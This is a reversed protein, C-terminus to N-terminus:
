DIMESRREEEKEEWQETMARNYEVEEQEDIFQWRDYRCVDCEDDKYVENGCTKCIKINRDISQLEKLLNLNIM